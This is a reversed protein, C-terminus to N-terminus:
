QVALEKKKKISLMGNPRKALILQDTKRLIKHTEDSYGTRTQSYVM